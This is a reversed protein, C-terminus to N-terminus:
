CQTTRPSPPTLQEDAPKAAERLWLEVAEDATKFGTITTGGGNPLRGSVTWTGPGNQLLQLDVPTGNVMVSRTETKAMDDM